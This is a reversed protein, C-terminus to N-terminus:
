LYREDTMICSRNNGGVILSFCQIDGKAAAPLDYVDPHRATCPKMAGKLRM